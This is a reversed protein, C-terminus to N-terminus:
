VFIFDVIQPAGGMDMPALAKVLCPRGWAGHDGSNALINKSDRILTYTKRTDQANTWELLNQNDCIAASGIDSNGGSRARRCNRADCM